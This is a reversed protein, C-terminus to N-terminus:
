PLVALVVIKEFRTVRIFVAFYKAIATAKPYILLSCHSFACKCRLLHINKQQFLHIYLMQDSTFFIQLFLKETFFRGRKTLQDSQLRLVIRLFLQFVKNFADVYPYYAGFPERKWSTMRFFCFFCCRRLLLCCSMTIVWTTIEMASCAFM